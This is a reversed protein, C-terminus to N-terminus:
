RATEPAHHPPTTALLTETILRELERQVARQLTHILTDERHPSGTRIFNGCACGGGDGASPAPCPRIELFDHGDLAHGPFRMPHNPLDEGVLRECPYLGGSPAVAVEGRGFACRTDAGARPLGALTAIRSDFWDISVLPLWRRWLDAVAVVTESLEGLAVPDWGTWLDLSLTFRRVGLEHLHRLGGPLNALTDPRVVVVVSFERRARILERLTEETRLSTGLGGPDRRHRDHTSPAGDCSVALELDPAFLVARADGDGLTGNTTLNFEVTKGVDRAAQRAFDMWERIRTAELLPEGGFFGLHLRGGDAISNLARRIARCGLEWPMPAQFKAGTYCYTCRLNCAHNVVLTLGFAPFPPHRM